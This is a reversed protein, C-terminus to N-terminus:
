IFTADDVLVTQELVLEEVTQLEVETMSLRSRSHPVISPSSSPYTYKENNNKCILKITMNAGPVM